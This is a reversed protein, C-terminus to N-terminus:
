KRTQCEYYVAIKLWGSANELLGLCVTIKWYNNLQGIWTGQMAPLPWSILDTGAVRPRVHENAWVTTRTQLSPPYLESSHLSVCGVFVFLHLFYNDYYCYCSFPGILGKFFSAFKLFLNRKGAQPSIFYILCERWCVRNKWTM